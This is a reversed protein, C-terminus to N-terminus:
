TAVPIVHFNQQDDLSQPTPSVFPAQHLRQVQEPQPFVEQNAAESCSLNFPSPLLARVFSLHKKILFSFPKMCKFAKFNQGANICSISVERGTAYNGSYWWAETTTGCCKHTPSQQM